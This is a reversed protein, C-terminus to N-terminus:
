NVQMKLHTVSCDYQLVRKDKQEMLLMNNFPFMKGMDQWALRHIGSFSCYNISSVIRRVLRKTENYLGKNDQGKQM